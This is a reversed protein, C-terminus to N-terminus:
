HDVGLIPDRYDILIVTDAVEELLPEWHTIQQQGGFYCGRNYRTWTDPQQQRKLIQKIINVYVYNFFLLFYNM